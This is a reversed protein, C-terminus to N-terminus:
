QKETKGYEKISGREELLRKVVEYLEDVNLNKLNDLANNGYKKRINELKEVIELLKQKQSADLLNKDALDELLSKLARKIPYLYKNIRTYNEFHFYDPLYFPRYHNTEPFYGYFSNYFGRKERANLYM